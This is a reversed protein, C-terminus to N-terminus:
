IMFMMIFILLKNHQQVKTADNNDEYDISKKADCVSNNSPNDSSVTAVKELSTPTPLITSSVVRNTSIGSTTTSTHFTSPPPGGRNNNPNIPGHINNRGVLQINSATTSYQSSTPINNVSSARINNCSSYSLLRNNNSTSVLSSSAVALRSSPNSSITTSSIIPPNSSQPTVVVSRINSTTVTTPVNNSSFM